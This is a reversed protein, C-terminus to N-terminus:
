IIGRVVPHRNFLERVSSSHRGAINPRQL